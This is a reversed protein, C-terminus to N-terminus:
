AAGAADQIQDGERGTAQPALEVGAVSAEPEVIPVGPSKKEGADEVKARYSDADASIQLISDRLEPLEKLLKFANTPTYPVLIGDGLDVGEWDAIIGQSMQQLLLDEAVKDGLPGRRIQDAFPKELEKRVDLSKRSRLRRVKIRVDDGFDVWVGGEERNEDTKFRAFLKSTAM